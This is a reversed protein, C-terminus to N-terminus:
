CKDTKFGLGNMKGEGESSFGAPAQPADLLLQHLQGALCEVAEKRSAPDLTLLCLIHMYMYVCVRRVYM